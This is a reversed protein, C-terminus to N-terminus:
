SIFCFFNNKMPSVLLISSYKNNLFTFVLYYNISFIYVQRQYFNTLINELWRLAEYEVLDVNPNMFLM